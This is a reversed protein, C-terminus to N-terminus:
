DAAIVCNRGQDKARYLAADARNFLEAPHDEPQAQAVGLSTTVHVADGMGPLHFPTEAIRKRIHDALRIAGDRATNSLLLTFEDGGFRSLIDTRRLGRQLAKAFQLILEDGAEHGHQDNIAKFGDVDLVIYSLPNNHRRALALERKLVQEMMARNYVGTLPDTMSAHHADQYQLANRLPYVLSRLMFELLSAEEETFPKGRTFHITGLPEREVIMEFNLEHRASRGIALDINHHPSILRLSSHAVDDIIERSFLRLLTDLDLTTQLIALTKLARDLGRRNIGSRRGTWESEGLFETYSSSFVVTTIPAQHQPATRLM